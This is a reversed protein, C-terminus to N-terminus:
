CLGWRRRLFWDLGFLLGALYFVWAANWVPTLVIRPTQDVQEENLGQLLKPLEAAEILRGGSSECLRRLYLTDAAVESEELNETFVIFRSEQTTGDPLNAVARYRGVHEPLFEAALRGTSAPVPALNVRGAVGDGYYITVPVSKVKPDPQRLALRFYVNEGLLINASSPRFSFQRSPIFDRGALLWLIMQDWFRDFVSNAGDAKANLAWRWLGQVGISVVQGRGYRRHVIAPEAKPDERSAATAFTSTLPKAASADNGAVLDPLADMGGEADNLVRFPSLGRGEATADLHVHDRSADGWLVPELGGGHDQDFARGRSFIVTGGRENVFQDLLDPLSVPSSPLPSSGSDARTSTASPTSLSDVSRGLIVVDYVALEDLTRPLHLAGGDPTKRVARIKDPGYRTVADVDFKDNRMLSRQLFTTDWYPDGELVLVRIQQDIVNLYTIASNNATDAENELPLVRVEYEYQGTEPETVEFDVPLEQFQQANVQKTRVVQGQRLLQVTIDELECGVLRLTASVRAKQKVYCYPQYGTIRVAVDRVNGQKGFAVAYIPTHHYHAAMGTKVPNVMELDHGDTLLILANAAVGEAPASLLTDISKNFRTSKGTPVLNFVSQPLSRADEDFQFMLMRSNAALGDATLAGSDALLNRAADFRSRGDADRQKMSLSTDLAVLTVRDRTPPPLSYRRSPQLLLGMMLAAGACRFLLLAVRRKWGLSDGTQWYIWATAALFLAGTLAVLPAPVIPDFVIDGGTM